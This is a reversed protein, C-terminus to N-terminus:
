HNTYDEAYMLKIVGQSKILADLLSTKGLFCGDDLSKIKKKSPPFQCNSRCMTMEWIPSLPSSSPPRSIVNMSRWFRNIM